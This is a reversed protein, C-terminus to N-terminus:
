RYAEGTNFDTVIGDHSRWKNKRRRVKLVNDVVDIPEM